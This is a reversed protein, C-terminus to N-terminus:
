RQATMRMLAGALSVVEDRWYLVATGVAYRTLVGRDAMDTVTSRSRRLMAAATASDVFGALLVAPTEHEELEIM